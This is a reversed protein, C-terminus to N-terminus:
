INNRKELTAIIIDLLLKTETLDREIADIRREQENMVDVVGLQSSYSSSSPPPLLPTFTTTSSSSFLSPSPLTSTSTSQTTGESAYDGDNVFKLSPDKLLARALYLFPKTINYKNRVSIDYYMMNKIRHFTISKSSVKRDEKRLDAKNGCLVWTIDEKAMRRVDLYWQRISKYSEMSAFDFM